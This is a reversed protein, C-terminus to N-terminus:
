LRDLRVGGRGVKLAFYNTLSRAPQSCDPEFPRTPAKNMAVDPSVGGLELLEPTSPSVSIHPLSAIRTLEAPHNKDLKPGMLPLPGRLSPRRGAATPVKSSIFNLPSLVM